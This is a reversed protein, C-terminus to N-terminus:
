APGIVDPDDDRVGHEKVVDCPDTAQMMRDEAAVHTMRRLDHCQREVQKILSQEDIRRLSVRSDLIHELANPIDDDRCRHASGAVGPEGILGIHSGVSRSVIAV